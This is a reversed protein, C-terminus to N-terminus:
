VAPTLPIEADYIMPPHEGETSWVVTSGAGPDDEAKKSTGGDGSELVAPLLKSGIIRLRGTRDRGILVLNDNKTETQFGLVEPDLSPIFVELSHKYCKGGRGGIPSFKIEANGLEVEIVIFKKGTEMIFPTTYILKAGPTAPAAPETPWTKIDSERAAYFKQFMGATNNRGVPKTIDILEM